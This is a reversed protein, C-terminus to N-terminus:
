LRSNGLARLLEKHGPRSPSMRHMEIDHQTRGDLALESLVEGICSAMKYAQATLLM